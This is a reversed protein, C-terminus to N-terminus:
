LGGPATGDGENRDRRIKEAQWALMTRLAFGGLVILPILRLEVPKGYVLIAGEGVTFWALVAVVAYLALGIWYKRDLDPGTSKVGSGRKQEARDLSM